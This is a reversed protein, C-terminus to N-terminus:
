SPYKFIINRILIIAFSYPVNLVTYCFLSWVCFGWLIIPAEIFYSVVCCVVVSAVDGTQNNDSVSLMFNIWDFFRSGIRSVLRPYVNIYPTTLQTKNAPVYPVKVSMWTAATRQLPLLSNYHFTNTKISYRKFNNFCFEQAFM